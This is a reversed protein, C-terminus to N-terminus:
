IERMSQAVSLSNSRRAQKLKKGFEVTKALDAQGDGKALEHILANVLKNTEEAIVYNQITVVYNDQVTEIGTPSNNKLYYSAMLLNAIVLCVMWIIWDRPDLNPLLVTLILAVVNFLTLVHM